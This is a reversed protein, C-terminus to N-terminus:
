FWIFLTLAAFCHPWESVASIHEFNQVHFGIWLRLLCKASADPDDRQAKTFLCSRFGRVSAGFLSPLHCGSLEDPYLRKRRHFSVTRFVHHYALCPYMLSRFYM